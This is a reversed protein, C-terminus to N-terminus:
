KMAVFCFTQISYIIYIKAHNILFPTSKQFKPINADSEDLYYFYYFLRARTVHVKAHILIEKIKIFSKETINNPLNPDKNPYIIQNKIVFRERFDKTLTKESDLCIGIQL